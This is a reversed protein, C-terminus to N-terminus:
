LILSLIFGYRLSNRNPSGWWCDEEPRIRDIWSRTSRGVRCCHSPRRAARRAQSNRRRATQKLRNVSRNADSLVTMTPRSVSEQLTSATGAKDPGCHRTFWFLSRAVARLASINVGQTATENQTSVDDKAPVLVLSLRERAFRSMDARFRWNTDQSVHRGGVFSAGDKISGVWKGFKVNRRLEKGTVAGHKRPLDLGPGEM